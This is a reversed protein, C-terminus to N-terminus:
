LVTGRDKLSIEDIKLAKLQDKVTRDRGPLFSARVRYARPGLRLDLGAPQVQGPEIKVLGLIMKRRLMVGIKERGLLGFANGFPRAAKEDELPLPTNLAPQM